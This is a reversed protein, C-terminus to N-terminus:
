AAACNGSPIATAPPMSQIFMGSCAVIGVIL